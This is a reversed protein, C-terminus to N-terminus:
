RVNAKARGEVYPKFWESHDFMYSQDLVRKFEEHNEIVGKKDLVVCISTVYRTLVNLRADTYRNVRSQEVLVVVSLILALVVFILLIKKMEKRKVSM